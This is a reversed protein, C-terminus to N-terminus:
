AAKSEPLPYIIVLGILDQIVKWVKENMLRSPIYIKVRLADNGLQKVLKVLEKDINRSNDVVVCYTESTAVGDTEKKDAEHVSILEDFIEADTLLINMM